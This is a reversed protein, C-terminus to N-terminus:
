PRAGRDLSATLEPSRRLRWIRGDVLYHHFAVGWGLGLLLNRLLPSATAAVALIRPGYWLLGLLAGLALYPLLGGHPRRGKGQEYHWVIRHYQLNHFITLSATITLLNDLLGFVLLHFCVVILLFLHKPGLRFPEILGSIRLGLLTTFGLGCGLDLAWRLGDVLAPPVLVPLGSAAFAPTLSFRVFPYLCGLYLLAADLRAGALGQQGAKRRYLAVFGYHQRVLHWYAWGYALVLFGRFLWGGSGLLSPGQACLGADALAVVGGLPILLWSWAGPLQARSATDARPALYSRAYTAWVHSGDFLWGWLFLLLVAPHALSYSSNDLPPLLVFLLVLAVGALVSGHFWGLDQGASIIWRSRRSTPPAAIRTPQLSNM